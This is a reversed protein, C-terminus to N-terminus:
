FICVNSLKRYLSNSSYDLSDYTFDDASGKVWVCGFISRTLRLSQQSNAIRM